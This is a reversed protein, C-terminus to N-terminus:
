FLFLACMIVAMTHRTKSSRITEKISFILDSEYYTSISTVLSAIFHSKNGTVWLSPKKMFKVENTEM